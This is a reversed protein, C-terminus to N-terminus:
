DSIPLGAANPWYRVNVVHQYIRLSMNDSVTVFTKESAKGHMMM